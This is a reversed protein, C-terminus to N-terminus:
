LVSRKIHFSFSCHLNQDDSYFTIIVEFAYTLLNVIKLLPHIYVYSVRCTRALYIHISLHEIGM